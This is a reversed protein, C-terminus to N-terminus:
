AFRVRTRGDATLPEDPVWDEPLSGNLKQGWERATGALGVVGSIRVDDATGVTVSIPRGAKLADPSAVVDFLLVARQGGGARVPLAGVTADRVSLDLDDDGPLRAGLADLLIAVVSVHAPLRTEVSAEVPVADAMPLVGVPLNQRHAVNDARLSVRVVAGRALLTSAGVQLGRDTSQWGTAPERGAPAAFATVAGPAPASRWGDGAIGLRGLGSVAVMACNAPLALKLAGAAGYERDDIVGGGRSLLTVRLAQDGDFALATQGPPVDWLQTVGARLVVGDGTALAETRAFARARAAGVAAGIEASRLSAAGRAFRTPRPAAVPAVRELRAGAVIARRVLDRGVVVTGLAADRQAASVSTRLRPAANETARAAVQMVAKLRPKALAVPEVPPPAVLPAPAPLDVPNMSLGASLPAVLPAASRRVLLAQRAVSGLGGPIVGSAGRNEAFVTGVGSLVSASAALADRYSLDNGYGYYRDAARGAVRIDGWQPADPKAFPLPRPNTADRLKAIPIVDPTNSRLEAIGSIALGTLAPLTNAAAPPLGSFVRYAAESVKGIRPALVFRNADLQDPTMRQWAGGTFQEIFVRHISTVNEEDMPGIDLDYTQADVSFVSFRSPSNPDWPEIASETVFAFARAPMRTETQFSWEATLRWPQDATGPAVPAGPPEPSLMGTAVQASVPLAAPDSGQLYKLKFQDWSIPPPKPRADPGFPLTVSAIALDVTVFGHLPPGELHLTAGVSISISITVCGIFCIEMSFRAGVSIGIEAVFYFPDWQALFDAHANFWLQLWDPGYTAELSTGAMVCTNTLAFYSEGKIHIVGLLNWRFGLRPVVPYEPRPQFSPHYGGLTLLFQSERFWMFFAFGGTLQCDHSLLWSNDTLQAQISFLMEASSFRAKLALEISVLAADDAPLAARALGLLGVEVGHDLEVYLVATIHVIEFSTGRLGVALWFAGRSPPVADRFRLLAGLPDNALAEPHDLAQILMFDPIQNLDSPVILRRNLGVGLGFATLNIIPAIGIPVFVGGFIALSTYKDGGAEEPVAYSGVAIAGITGIKILLMGDYEIPPTYKVLAGSITLGPQSFGIGLGKLDLTWTSPDGATRYPVILTLDDVQATFGGISAGGDVLLGADSSTLRVGVQDIYIPGFKSHVGIWLVGTAGGMRVHLQDDERYWVEIDVGPNAPHNDGGAGGQSLLAGVVPNGGGAGGGTVANLPLGFDKIELGGGLREVHLGGQTEVNMFLYAGVGGLHISPDDVLAQGDKGYIGIGVGSLEVGVNLAPEPGSTDLVFIQLGDAAEPTGPDAGAAQTWSQPAGLLVAVSLSDTEFKVRGKLRVGLRGAEGALSLALDGIPISAGNALVSLGGAVMPWVDPLPTRLHGGVDVLHAGTLVDQVTPGTSWLKTALLSERRAVELLTSAVLPLAWGTILQEVSGAGPTASFSPAIRLDLPGPESDGIGSALPQVSLNFGGDPGANAAFDIRPVLPVGIASLVAGFRGDCEVGGAQAVFNLRAALVGALELQDVFLGVSPADGQFGVSVGVQGTVGAPLNLAFRARAGDQTVVAPLGPVAQLAEVAKQAVLNRVSATFGASLNGELLSRLQDTHAAFGGATDHLGLADTVDLLKQLWAPLPALAAVLEDLAKPLLAEAAGRLAGLGSFTPLIQIPATGGGPLLTLQVVGRDIGFRVGINGWTGDLPLTLTVTGEPTVHRAPDIRVGADFGLVGAIDASTALGVRLPDAANGAGTAALRLGAPLGLGAGIPLGAIRGIDALMTQIRSVDFGSGDAVSLVDHLTAGTDRLFRELAGLDLTPVLTHLAASAAGSFLVRPWLDSLKAQLAAPTPVPILDLGDLWPQARLTLRGASAQWDLEVAGLHADVGVDVTLAPLTVGAEFAIGFSEGAANSDAGASLNLSWPQGGGAPRIVFEVPADAPAWRWPGEAPGTIGLWGGTALAAPLRTRLFGLADTTLAAWADGLLGIGGHPDPGVLGIATLADLLRTAAGLVDANGSSLAQFVEGLLASTIADQAGARAVTPGHLAADTLRVWPSATSGAIDLGIAAERVRVDLFAVRPDSLGALDAPLTSAGGLLWDGPRYFRAAFGMGHAPRPAAAAPHSLPIQLLDIRLRADAAIQNQQPPPLDLAASFGVGLHTPMPRAVAAMRTAFGQTGAKFAAFASDAIAVAGITHVPVDGVDFAAGTADFAAFPFRQPQPLAGAAAPPLYGDLAVTLSRVTDPLAGPTMDGALVAITRIADALDRDVLFPLNAGVHPTGLTILGKVKAQNGATYHRAALGFTSHAVITVPVGPRLSAIRDVLRGILAGHRNWDPLDDDPLSGVYWDAVATMSDLPYTLPDPISPDDLAFRAAPDKTGHVDASALLANWPDRGALAPALLLVARPAGAGGALADVQTGVQTIAAAVGPLRWHSAFVPDGTTWGGVVPQQSALPVVGDSRELLDAFLEIGYALADSRRGHLHARLDADYTGLDRLLPVLVAPTPAVSALAGLGTAIASPPGAPDLWILLQAADASDAGPFPLMWPEEYTGGGELTLADLVNAPLAGGVIGLLRELWVAAYSEGSASASTLMRALWGRVASLPDTLLLGPAAPDALTPWDDPLGDAFRHLGALASLERVDDGLAAAAQGLLLSLLKELTAPTLGFAAAATAPNSLDFGAAPPFGLTAVTFSDGGADVHVNELGVRWALPSGPTWDLQAALSAVSATVEADFLTGSYAPTVALRLAQAGIFALHGAGTAPLDFALMESQWSFSLPAADAAVRLGVRLRQVDAPNGSTQANWAALQLQLPGIAPGLAIRWPDTAAGTGAVGGPLGPLLAALEGFLPAWGHTADLLAARHVAAIAGAPNTVFTAPDIHHTWGPLPQAPNAPDRPAGLGALAALSRAVGGGGLAADIADTVAATAAAAVSDTNTLDLRPYDTSAVHVGDLEVLPQLAAGDWHLGARLSGVRFSGGGLPVLDGGGGGSLSLQVIADPLVRARGTGALPIDALSAGAEIALRKGDLVFALRAALGLRFFSGVRAAQLRLSSDGGFPVLAISFSQPLAGPEVAPAAGFLDGFLGAFHGLWAEIPLPGAGEFLSQLWQQVAAPDNAVRAFPFAPIATDALGLLGIANGVARVAAPDASAVVQKLLGALLDPIDDGLSAPDLTKDVPPEGDLSLGELVIRLSFASTTARAVVDIARLAIGGGAGPTLGVGVRLRVTLPGDDSGPLASVSAGAGILPQTVSLRASVPTADDATGYDGALGIVLGGGQERVTVYANGSPNSPLLPHWKEGAPVNPGTKPPLLADLLRLVADRQDANSLATRLSPAAGLPAGFWDKNFGGDSNLLGAIRALDALEGSMGGLDIM